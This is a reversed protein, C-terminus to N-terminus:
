VGAYIYQVYMLIHKTKKKKSCILPNCFAWLSHSKYNIANTKMDCQFIM